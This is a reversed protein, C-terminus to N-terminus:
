YAIRSGLLEGLDFRFGDVDFVEVWYVLSDIILKKVPESECRLDNGCGSHNTLDGSSDTSCYIERDLNILHQPIGIHNYVVDLVVAMGADHFADVLQTFESLSADNKSSSSYVSAPSFFNVPMYGWHYQEKTRADFEHVLNFSWLMQASNECTVIRPPWGSLWARLVRATDEM